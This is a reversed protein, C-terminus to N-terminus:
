ERKWVELEEELHRKLKAFGNRFNKGCRWCVLPRDLYGEKGPHRRVDDEALPFDAVDILFPTNFSNYHKKRKMCESVRDRSLVHIHLHTM